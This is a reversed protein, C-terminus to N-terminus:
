PLFFRTALSGVDDTGRRGVNYNEFERYVRSQRPSHSRLLITKEDGAPFFM